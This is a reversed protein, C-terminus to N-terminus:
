ITSHIGWDSFGLFSWEEKKDVDAVALLLPPLLELLYCYTPILWDLLWAIVETSQNVCTEFWWSLHCISILNTQLEGHSIDRQNSSECWVSNKRVTSMKFFYIWKSGNKKHMTLLQEGHRIPRTCLRKIMRHIGKGAALHMHLVITSHCACSSRFLQRSPVFPCLFSSTM